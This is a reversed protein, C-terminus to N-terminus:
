KNKQPKPKQSISITTLIKRRQDFGGELDFEEEEEEEKNHNQTEM